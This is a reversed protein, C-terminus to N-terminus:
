EKTDEADESESGGSAGLNPVIGKTAAEFYPLEYAPFYIGYTEGDRELELVGYSKMFVCGYENMALKYPKYRASQPPDSKNWSSVSIRKKVERIGRLESFPFAYKESLDSLYLVGDEVFLYVEPNHYPTMEMGRARPTPEGKKLVYRFAIVDVECANMPIGLKEKADSTAVELVETLKEADESEFVRKSHLKEWLWLAGFVLLSGGAAWFLAPANGYGEALTVNGLGKLIGGALVLGGLGTVWKVIRLPLPLKARELLKQADQSAEEMERGEQYSLSAVRFISGDFTENQKNKTIDVGFIPKM